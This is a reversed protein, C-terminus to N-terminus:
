KSGVKTYIVIFDWLFHCLIILKINRYKYYYVAFILGLCLPILMQGITGYSIHLIGFIIASVAISVSPKNILMELRTLLYGRCIVEETVGATLPVLVILLKDKQIIHKLKNAIDSKNNVGTFKVILLVILACIFSMLMIKFCSKLYFTFPYSKESWLLFPQKEIKVVYLFLLSLVFWPYLVKLYLSKIDSPYVTVGLWNLLAPLALIFITAGIGIILISKKPILLTQNM